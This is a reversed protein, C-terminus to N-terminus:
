QSFLTVSHGGGSFEIGGAETRRAVEAVDLAAMLNQEAPDYARRCSPVPTQATKLVGKELTFNWALGICDSQVAIRGDGISATIAHPLDIDSGDIGAVRFEGTLEAASAIPPAESPAAPPEEAAPQCAALVLAALIALRKGIM